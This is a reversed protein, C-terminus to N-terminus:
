AFRRETINFIVWLTLCQLRRHHETHRLSALVAMKYSNSTSVSVFESVCARGDRTTNQIHFLCVSDDQTINFVVSLRIAISSHSSIILPIGMHLLCSHRGLPPPPRPLRHAKTCIGATRHTWTRSTPKKEPPGVRGFINSPFISENEIGVLVRNKKREREREALKVSTKWDTNHNPKLMLETSNPRNVCSKIVKVNYIM